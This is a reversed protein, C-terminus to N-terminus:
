IKFDLLHLYSVCTSFTWWVQIQMNSNDVFIPFWWLPSLLFNILGRQLKCFYCIYCILYKNGSTLVYRLFLLPPPLLREWCFTSLCNLCFNMMTKLLSVITNELMLLWKQIPNKSHEILNSRQSNVSFYRADHTKM